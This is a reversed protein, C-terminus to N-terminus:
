PKSQATCDPRGRIALDVAKKIDEEMCIKASSMVKKYSLTGMGQMFVNSNALDWAGKLRILDPLM